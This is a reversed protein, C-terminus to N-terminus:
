PEAGEGALAEAAARRVLISRGAESLRRLASASESGGILGLARAAEAALYPDSPNEAAAILHPVAERSGRRGLISAALLQRDPLTHRLARILGEEYGVRERTDGRCAPCRSAAADVEAFCMSCFWTIM